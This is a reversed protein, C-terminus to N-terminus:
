YKDDVESDGGVSKALDAKRILVEIAKRLTETGACILDPKMIDFDGGYPHTVVGGAERILLYGAACDWPYMGEIHFADLNGAAVM